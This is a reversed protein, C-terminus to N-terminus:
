RVHGLWRLRQKRIESIIGQERYLNMLKQNTCIRWMDNEKVPDVSYGEKGCQQPTKM